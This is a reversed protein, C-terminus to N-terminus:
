FRYGVGLMAVTSSPKFLLGASSSVQEYNVQMLEGQLYVGQVLTRRFGGGLGYGGASLSADIGPGGGSLEGNLRNVSLKGYVLTRTDLAYALEGYAAYNGTAKLELPGISGAKSDGLVASLGFNLVGNSGFAIGKAIQVVLNQDSNSVNALTNGAPGKVEVAVSNFNVNLGVSIGEFSSAVTQAFACPSALVLLSLLGSTVSKMANIKNSACAIKRATM